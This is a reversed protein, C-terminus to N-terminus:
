FLEWSVAVLLFAGVFLCVGLQCDGVFSSGRDFLSRRVGEGGEGDKSSESGEGGESSESGESGEGDKSSESSESGEGDEGDKSSEECHRHGFGHEIGDIEQQITEVVM